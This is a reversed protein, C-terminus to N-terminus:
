QETGPRRRRALIVLAILLFPVIVVWPPVGRGGGPATEMGSEPTTGEPSEPTTSREIIEEAARESRLEPATRLKLVAVGRPPLKLSVRTGNLMAHCTGWVVEVDSVNWERQLTVNAETWSDSPNMVTLYPDSSGFREVRVDGEVTVGTVPEWGASMLEYVVDATKELKEGLVREYAKGNVVDWKATPLFGYFVSKNIFEEILELDEPNLPDLDATLVAVVPKRGAIFRRYSLNGDGWNFGTPSCEFPLADLYIAGFSAMGESVFNGTLTGGMESSMWDRLIQLYRVAATSLHVAPRFTNTDYTLPFSLSKIAKESMDVGRSREMFNDLEVGDLSSGRERLLSLARRLVDATYSWANYGPLGPDPNVPVSAVWDEPRWNPGRLVRAVQLMGREDRAGVQLAMRAKYGQKTTNLKSLNKVAEIFEWYSPPPENVSRNASPEFEWPLVYQVIHVGKERLNAAIDASRPTLASVQSFWVGYRSYPWDAKRRTMNAKPSFWEPHLSYYKLIADRFSSAGFLEVSVSAVAHLDGAQTLGLKFSTGFGRFDHFHRFVVPWDLPVSIAIGRSGDSMVAIPYLSVPMYGWYLANTISPGDDDPLPDDDWYGPGPPIALAVEVARSSPSFNSVTLNMRCVEGEEISLQFHLDNWYAVHYGGVRSLNLPRWVAEAPPSILRVEHIILSVQPREHASVAVIGAEAYRAGPPAKIEATFRRGLPASGKVRFEDITILSGSPDLWRVGVILNPAAPEGVLGSSSSIVLTLYYPLDGKVPVRESLLVCKGRGDASIRMGRGSISAVITPDSFVGRWSVNALLDTGNLVDTLDRVWVLRDLPPSLRAGDLTLTVNDVADM